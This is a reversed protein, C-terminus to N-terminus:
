AVSAKEAARPWQKEILTSCLSDAYVNYKSVPYHRVASKGVKAKYGKELDSKSPHGALLVPLIEVRLSAAMSQVDGMRRMLSPIVGDRRWEGSYWCLSNQNDGCLTFSRISSVAVMTEIGLLLGTLEAINSSVYDFGVSEPTLVEQEIAVIEDKDNVVIATCCGGVRSPSQGGACGGDTFVRWGSNQLKEVETSFLTGKVVPLCSSAARMRSEVDQARNVVPVRYDTRKEM